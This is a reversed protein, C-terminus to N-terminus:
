SSGYPAAKANCVSAASMFARSSSVATTSSQDAAGAADSSPRRLSIPPASGAAGVRVLFAAFVFVDRFFAPRLFAAPAVVFFVVAFFAPLFVALFLALFAAFFAAFFGALFVALFAALFAFLFAALFAFLFAALFVVLFFVALLGVLFAFFFGALFAPARAPLVRLFDDAREAPELFAAFFVRFFVRQGSCSVTDSVWEGSFPPFLHRVGIKAVFLHRVGIERFFTDSVSKGSKRSLRRVGKRLPPTLRRRRRAHRGRVERPDARRGRVPRR